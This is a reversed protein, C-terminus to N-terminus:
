RGVIVGAPVSALDFYTTLPYTKGAGGLLAVHEWVYTTAFKTLSATGVTTSAGKVGYANHNALTNTVTLREMPSGDLQLFTYGNVFTTRDITIEGPAGTIQVAVGTTEIDNGRITIRSTRGGLQGSAIGQINFGNQVDRIINDEFLVDETVSWPATGNQNVSKFLIAYGTQADTWNREFLNRRIIVRRAAKLEFLNKVAKGSTLDPPVPKWESRKTFHNGDVLVDAPMREPSKSDAGGFMVNEGAAELYNDTITYPGAGDWACFAQSDQGSRWINAIHSRTLTIQQGNGRIGRKQGNVGAVMLIQEMKVNFADQLLIVEGLGDSRTEVQLGLLHWNSAEIGTIAPSLNGSAIIPLLSADAPTIRRDPLASLARLTVVGEKVGLTLPGTYTCGGILNITDGPEAADLKAQISNGCPVLISEPQNRLEAILAEIEDLIISQSRPEQVVLLAILIGSYIKLM